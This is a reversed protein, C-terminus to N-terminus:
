RSAIAARLGSRLARSPVDAFWALEREARAVLDLRRPLWEDCFKVIREDGLRVAVERLLRATDIGHRVGLLTGRYSRESDILRDFLYNRLASFVRGVARAMDLGSEPQRENALGDFRERETRAHEGLALLARAPPIDGLRRAERRTHVDASRESQALERCLKAQLKQLDDM